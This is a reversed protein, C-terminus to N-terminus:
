YLNFLSKLISIISYSVETITKLAYQGFQKDPDNVDADSLTKDENCFSLIVSSEWVLAKYLETLSKLVFIGAESGWHQLVKTKM